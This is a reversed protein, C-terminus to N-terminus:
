EEGKGNSRLAIRLGGHLVVGLLTLGLGALGLTELWGFRSFGPMYVGAVKALRSDRAHCASCDLAADKPAVMHTIPWNSVTPLFGIEGSFPRQEIEMGAEISKAIDFNGWFAADDDGWLHNYVLTKNGADYPIRTHMEKFPWIRSGPDSADGLVDNIPVVPQSDDIQETPMTYRMDGNFWKYTPTLNEGWVFSGKISWYTHRHEGNGQTYEEEYYGAGDLLKGATEWDWDTMTAVGGRAFEPIHCTQCAIRAAHADLQYGILSPKPHPETGHCSECTAAQRLEGPGGVGHEDHAVMEYHSGAIAHHKTVHCRTCAFNAGDTAMHVDLEKPPNKLSTDLDGHKVGDGGGGFFHCSGCNERGPLGVNQAVHPYDIPPLGEFMTACVANGKTPPTRYYGATRDHCVLCDVSSEKQFTYEEGERVGNGIHCSACMGENNKANTCFNNIVNEKGVRQGTRPSIYDWTWHITKKIQAEAETHCGVCAASVEFNNAFPGKLAEFKTHDATKGFM